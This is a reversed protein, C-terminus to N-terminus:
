ELDADTLGEERFLRNINEIATPNGKQMAQGYYDLAKDFDKEVYKNGLEYMSGLSNIAPAYGEDAAKQCWKVAKKLSKKCGRGIKYDVYLDFKAASYGLKAAEMTKKFAADWDKNKKLTSAEKYVYQAATLNEKEIDPYALEIKRKKLSSPNDDLHMTETSSAHIPNLGAISTGVFFIITLTRM